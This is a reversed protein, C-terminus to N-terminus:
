IRKVLINIIGISPGGGGCAIVVDESTIDKEFREALNQENIIFTKMDMFEIM